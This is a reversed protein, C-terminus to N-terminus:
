ELKAHLLLLYKFSYKDELNTENVYAELLDPYPALLASMKNADVFDVRGTVTDLEYCVRKTVLSSAAIADGIHGGLKVDDDNAFVSGVASGLPMASFYIQDGLQLAPAFWVGFRLKNYRLKRCNLYLNGSSDRVAFCRRKLRQESSEDVGVSIRYDAGGTLLIQNRSRKEVRLVSVTDGVHTMLGKLNAYIINQSFLPFCQLSMLLCFVVKVKMICDEVFRVRHM